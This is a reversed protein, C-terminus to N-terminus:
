EEEPSFLSGMPNIFTLEGRVYEWEHSGTLWGLAALRNEAIVAVDRMSHDDMESYPIGDFVAFDNKSAKTILKDALARDTALSIAQEINEMVNKLGPPLKKKAQESEPSGDALSTKLDMVIQSRSRWYWAEAVNIAEGFEKQSVFHDPKVGEGSSFYEIFSDITHPFAPIIATAKYMDENPFRSYFDPLDRFIRLAWLLMGFSEWRSEVPILDEVVDWTGYEKEFLSKERATMFKHIQTADITKKLTNFAEIGRSDPTETKPLSKHSSELAWRTLLLQTCAARLAVYVLKSTFKTQIKLM